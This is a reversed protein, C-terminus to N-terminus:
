NIPDGRAAALVPMGPQGISAQEDSPNPSGGPVASASAAPGSAAPGSAAPASAAPASAAPQSVSPAPSASPPEISASPLPAVSPILTPAPTPRLGVPDPGVFVFAALIGVAVLVGTLLGALISVGTKM